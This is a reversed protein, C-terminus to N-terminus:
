GVWEFTVNFSIYMIGLSHIIWCPKNSWHRRDSVESKPDQTTVADYDERALRSEEYNIEYVYDEMEYDVMAITMSSFTNTRIM